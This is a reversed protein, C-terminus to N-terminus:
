GNPTTSFVQQVGVTSIECLSLILIFSCVSVACCCFLRLFGFSCHLLSLLFLDSKSYEGTTTRPRKAPAESSPEPSRKKERETEDVKIGSNSANDMALSGGSSMRGRGRKLAGTTSGKKDSSSSDREVLEHGEKREGKEVSNGQRGEIRNRERAAGALEVGDTETDVDNKGDEEVANEVTESEKMMDVDNGKVERDKKEEEETEEKENQMPDDHEEEVKEDGNTKGQGDKAGDGEGGQFQQAEYM